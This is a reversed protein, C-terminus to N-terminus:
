SLIKSRSLCRCDFLSHPRTNMWHSLTTPLRFIPHRVRLTSVHRSADAQALVGDIRRFGMNGGQGVKLSGGGGIWLPGCWHSSGSVIVDEHVCVEERSM